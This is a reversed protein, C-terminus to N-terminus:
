RSQNAFFFEVGTVRFRRWRLDLGLTGSAFLAGLATIRGTKLSLNALEQGVFNRAVLDSDPEQGRFM